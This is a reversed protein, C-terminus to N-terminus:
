DFCVSVRVVYLLLFFASIWVIRNTFIEKDKMATTRRTSVEAQAALAPAGAAGGTALEEEHEGINSARREANSANDFRDLEIASSNVDATNENKSQVAQSHKNDGEEHSRDAEHDLPANDRWFTLYLICVNTFAFSLSVSFFFSWKIGAQVFATAVLPSCLGGFGYAGHM